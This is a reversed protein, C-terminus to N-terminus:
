RKHAANANRAIAITAFTIIMQTYMQWRMNVIVTAHCKRNTICNRARKRKREKQKLKKKEREKTNVLVTAVQMYICGYRQNM